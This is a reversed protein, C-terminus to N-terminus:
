NEAVEVITLVHWWKDTGASYSVDLSTDDASLAGSVDYSDVDVGYTSTLAPTTVNITCNMPNSVPNIADTLIVASGLPNGKVSVQETGTGGVDGELVYYAMKSAPVDAGVFGTLSVVRSSSVLPWLTDDLGIHKPLAGTVKYIIVLAASANDMAGNQILGSYGSILYSGTLETTHSLIDWTIDSRCVWIDDAAGAADFSSSDASIASALGDPFQLVIDTDAPSGEAQTGGWYLLAQVLVGNAPIDTASVTFAAPNELTDVNTDADTSVALPVGIICFGVGGSWSHTDSPLGTEFGFEFSSTIATGDYACAGSSVTCSFNTGNPLGAAPTFTMSCGDASWTFDGGVGPVLSFASQTAAKQMATSFTVTIPVDAGVGIAGNHPWVSDVHADTLAAGDDDDLNCGGAAVLFLFLVGSVMHTFWKTM